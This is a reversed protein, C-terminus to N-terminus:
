KGTLYANVTVEFSKCDCIDRAQTSRQIHDGVKFTPGGNFAQIDIANTIQEVRYSGDSTQQLRVKITKTKM